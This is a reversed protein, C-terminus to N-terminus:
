PASLLTRRWSQIRSALYRPPLQFGGTNAHEKIHNFTSAAHHWYSDDNKSEGHARGFIEQRYGRVTYQPLMSPIKQDINGEAKNIGTELLDIFLEAQCVFRAALLIGPVGVIRVVGFQWQRRSHNPLDRLM